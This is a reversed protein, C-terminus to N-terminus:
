RPAGSIVLGPYTWREMAAGAVIGCLIGLWEGASAQSVGTAAPAAFMAAFSLAMPWWTFAKRAGTEEARRSRASFYAVPLFLVALWAANVPWWNADLIVDWPLLVAWALGVTKRLTVQTMGEPTGARIVMSGQGAQAEITVEQSSENASSGRDTFVGQLGVTVPRLKLRTAVINARFWASEGWQGLAFGEV